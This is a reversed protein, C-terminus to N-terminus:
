KRGWRGWGGVQGLGFSKTTSCLHEKVLFVSLGTCPSSHKASGARQVQQERLASHITLLLCPTQPTGAGCLSEDECMMDLRESQWSQRDPPRYPMDSFLWLPWSIWLKNELTISCKTNIFLLVTLYMYVYQFQNVTVTDVSLSQWTNLYKTMKWKTTIEGLSSFDAGWCGSLM